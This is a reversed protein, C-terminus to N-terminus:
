RARFTWVNNVVYNIVTGLGIGALQAAYINVELGMALGMAVGFQLLGAAASVAYYRALRVLWGRRGGTKDRDGWTWLDNLLFNSLVSVAIGLASSLAERLEPALGAFAAMGGAVFAMNVVVGSAGVAAFQLLRQHRALIDRIM